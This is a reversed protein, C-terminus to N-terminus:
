VVSKRDQMRPVNVVEVLDKLLGNREVNILGADTLRAAKSSRVVLVDGLGIKKSGIRM